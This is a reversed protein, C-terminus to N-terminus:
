EGLEMDVEAIKAEIKKNMETKDKHLADIEIIFTSGQEKGPSEAWIRGRHAEMMKKAVYLGLGTGSINTKSADPARSFRDFLKPIVAKDIGVGSDKIMVIIKDRDDRKIILDIWGKPTYKISNDILNSIVQKIKGEDGHVFLDSVEDIETKLELGSIKINPKMENVVQEATKRLDFDTFDYKMRGQDMRSVDLYDGVLVVLSQSSKFITEIGEKISKSLEGFDGELMMSAFGKISTLPGRLQHSALSIFETKQADKEELQSNATTLDRNLKEIKIRDSNEKKINKGLIYVIFGSIVLTFTNLISDTIGNLFFYESAVLPVLIWALMMQNFYKLEFVDYRNIAFVMFVIFVPLAFMGYLQIEYIETVSSLYGTLSFTTLFGLMAVTVIIFSKRDVVFLKKRYEIIAIIAISIITVIEVLFRYYTLYENEISECITQYFGLISQGSLVLYLPILTFITLVLKYKNSIDRGNIFVTFFYLAALFMCIDFYDLLSWFANVLYYNDSNWTIWDGFLWVSLYFIFIFFSFNLIKRDKVLIYIGMALLIGMPLLHSYSATTRIGEWNDGLAQLCTSIM